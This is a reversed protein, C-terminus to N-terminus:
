LTDPLVSKPILEPVQFTVRWLTREETSNMKERQHATNYSNSIILDGVSWEHKIVNEERLAVEFLQNITSTTESDSVGILKNFFIKQLLVSKSNDIPDTLVFPMINGEWGTNYLAKNFV